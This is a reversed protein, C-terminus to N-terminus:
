EFNGGISSIYCAGETGNRDVTVRVIVAWSAATKSTNEFTHVFSSLVSDTADEWTPSSDYGNNCVEVKFVAEPPISRTINIVIRTPMSASEMPDTTVSLASIQKTFTYTRVSPLGIAGSATITMTHSGNGLKLWSANTVDFRNTAGLTAVYSRIEVGDIAEVITTDDGDADTVTYDVSFGDTKVGLNEDNGSIVPPRNQIISIWSSTTSGSTNGLVDYASVSYKVTSHGEEITDTYSLESGAYILRGIMGDYYKLLRYGALDGDIDTGSNWSITVSDGVCVSSPVSINSPAVPAHSYVLTYCGDSDTTDSVVADYLSVCPRVGIYSTDADITQWDGERDVHCVSTAHNPAASRLWWYWNANASSPKNSTYTNACAHQTPTALLSGGNAFYDFTFGENGDTDLGVEIRSPLFVFDDTWDYSSYYKTGIYTGYGLAALEDASFLHLFGQRHSYSAMYDVYDSTPAQDYTHAPTYWAGAGATSNLWQRLNSQYYRSSGSTKASSSTNKPEKADFCLFDIIEDTMLFVQTYAGNEVHVVKWIIEEPTESSMQFRGFKVRSGIPLEGMNKSM